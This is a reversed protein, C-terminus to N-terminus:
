RLGMNDAIAEAYSYGGEKLSLSLSLLPHIDTCFHCHLDESQKAWGVM